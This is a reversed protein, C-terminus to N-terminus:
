GSVKRSIKRVNKNSFVDHKFHTLFITGMFIHWKEWTEGHYDITESNQSLNDFQIVTSRIFKVPYITVNQSKQPFKRFNDVLVSSFDIKKIDNRNKSVFLRLSKYTQVTYLKGLNSVLVIMLFFGFGSVQIIVQELKNILKLM